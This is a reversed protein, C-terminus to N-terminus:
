YQKAKDAFFQNCPGLLRHFSTRDLKVLKANLSAKITAARPQDKMLALEGFYDGAKLTKKQEGGIWVTCEGELIIFFEDGNEGQTIINEDPKTVNVPQLADAVLLREYDQLAKLFPVNQLLESYRQRKQLHQDKLLGLYSIQDIAWVSVNGKAIISAARTSGSILALEGFYQDPGLLAVHINNKVVICQGSEIIYFNDPQDGQKIIMVGDKYDKHFMANVLNRRQDPQLFNFLDVKKPPKKLNVYQKQTKKL